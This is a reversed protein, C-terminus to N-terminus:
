AGRRAILMRGPTPLVIYAEACAELGELIPVCWLTIGILGPERAPPVRLRGTVPATVATPHLFREAGVLM